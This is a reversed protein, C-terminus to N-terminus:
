RLFSLFIFSSFSAFFSLRSEVVTHKEQEIMDLRDRLMDRDREVAAMQDDYKREAAKMDQTLAVYKSQQARVEEKAQEHVNRLTELQTQLLSVEQQLRSVEVNRESFSRPIILDLPPSIINFM